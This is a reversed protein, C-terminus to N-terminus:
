SFNRNESEDYPTDHTLTRVCTRKMNLYVLKWSEMSVVLNMKWLASDEVLYSIRSDMLLIRFSTYLGEVGM